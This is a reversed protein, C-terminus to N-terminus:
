LCMDFFDIIGDEVEIRIDEYNHIEHRYGSYLNTIVKHGTEILMNSVLYVGEGYEGVPDQDGAINYIPLDEPVQKAWDLSDICQIMRIFYLLSLNHTPHTFADFPDNAHDKQVVPDHCIWENGLTAGEECRDFMWGMLEGVYAPDSEHAKGEAIAAELKEAVEECMRFHGTTGCIVLGTLEEGYKAAFDRAIMSGMSHGFMFYPLDPYLKEVEGKFLKEDEMMTHEGADGWDGWTDNAIATAGHGVHDNAAVIYGAEMFANIMHFYRRSHEGFGHVLQVIGLPPCAPVYVWGTVTDRKNYSAFRIEHLM